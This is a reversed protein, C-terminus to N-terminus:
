RAASEAPADRYPKGSRYVELRKRIETASEPPGSDEAMEVAQLAWRIADEYRGVEAYAAALTDIAAASKYGVRQCAEEALRVAEPGDRFQPRPDTALIWALDNAAPVWHEGPSEIALRYHRVADPLQDTRALLAALKVRRASDSPDTTLLQEYKVRASAYDEQAALADAWGGLAATHDPDLNVAVEFHTAAEDFRGMRSLVTGLNFQYEVQQPDIEAAKSLMTLADDLQGRAALVAAQGAYPRPHTPSSEAAMRFCDFAEDLRNLKVFEFGLNVQSVVNGPQSRAAQEFYYLAREDDGEKKAISGLNNLAVYNDPVVRAAHSFLTESSRWVAVQRASLVTCYLLIMAAAAASVIRGSRPIRKAVLESVGWAAMILLGISPVYLYRDAMAQDGVQVLGIVPMLTGLYWLWGVTLYARRCRWVVLSVAVLVIVSGIVAPRSLPSYSLGLLSRPYFFALNVPWLMKGLYAVYSTATNALRVDLSVRELTSLAGGQHQAVVTVISSAAALAFLPLKEAILLTARRLREGTPDAASRWRGLPWYDLLLLTCPLTVLMPKCLLGLVFAVIVLAYRIRRQRASEAHCYGVYAWTTLLWFLTSLTDKREAAWAV